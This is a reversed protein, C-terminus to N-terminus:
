IPRAGLIAKRVQFAEIGWEAHMYGNGSQRRGGLPAAAYGDFNQNLYVQGAQLRAAARRARGLDGSHVVACLGYVSDNALEVAEDETDYFFISLVPGPIEEQAIAMTPKVDAFVTPKVFYGRDLGAPAGTGGAVLTAGEDIGKQILRQVHAKQARNVLPGMTTAEDSPDGVLYQEAEARAYAIAQERFYAPVFMRTAASSQGANNFCNQVGTTVAFRLDADDLILNPSKGGLEQHVQKATDAAARAVQIGAQTSGAFSVVDVGPHAALANGVTPGEGNVLNFAGAPVGAEHLVEAFLMANLPTTESPKLVVTCGAALAAATKAFVQNIPWNSPTILAAVGAPERVIATMGRFYEFNMRELAQITQLLHASGLGTQATRSLSIPAGLESTLVQAFEEIRGEYIRRVRRLLELREDPSTTSFSPFARRAAAVADLIDGQSALSIGAIQLETAPNVVAMTARGTSPVWKGDIYFNLFNPAM